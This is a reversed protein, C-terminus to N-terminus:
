RLLGEQCATIFFNVVTWPSSDYGDYLEDYVDDYILGISLISYTNFYVQVPWFPWACSQYKWVKFNLSMGSAKQWFNELIWPRITLVQAACCGALIHTSMLVIQECIIQFNWSKLNGINQPNMEDFSNGECSVGSGYIKCHLFEEGTQWLGAQKLFGFMARNVSPLITQLNSLPHSASESWCDLWNKNALVRGFVREQLTEM